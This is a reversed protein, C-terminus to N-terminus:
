PVHAAVVADIEVAGDRGDDHHPEIAVADWGGNEAPRWRAVYDDAFSAQTWGPIFVLVPVGHTSTKAQLDVFWLDYDLAAARETTEGPLGVDVEPEMAGASRLLIMSFVDVRNFQPDVFEGLVVEGIAGHEHTVGGSTHTSHLPADVIKFTLLGTDAPHLGIKAAEWDRNERVWDFDARNGATTHNDVNQDFDSHGEGDPNSWGTDEETALDEPSMPITGPLAEIPEPATGDPYSKFALYGADPLPSWLQDVDNESGVRPFPELSPGDGSDGNCAAAFLGFAVILPCGLQIRRAESREHASASLHSALGGICGTALVFILLIGNM